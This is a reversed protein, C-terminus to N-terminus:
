TDSAWATIESERVAREGAGSLTIRYSFEGTQDAPTLRMVEYPGRASARNDSFGRTLRVLQRLHSKHPM